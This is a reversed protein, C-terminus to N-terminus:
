TSNRFRKAHNKLAINATTPIKAIATPTATKKAFGIVGSVMVMM